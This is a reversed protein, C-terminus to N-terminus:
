EKEIKRGKKREWKKKKEWEKDIKRMRDECKEKEIHIKREREKECM